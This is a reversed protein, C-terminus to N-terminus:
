RAGSYLGDPDTYAQILNGTVIARNDLLGHTFCPYGSNALSTTNQLRVASPM